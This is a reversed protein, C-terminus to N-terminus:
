TKYPKMAGWNEGNKIEVKLPVAIKYVSEMINELPAAIEKLIDNRVEFLLEDHISLLPKAKSALWGREKLFEFSKIMALKIIDAGLSQIPMNTARRELEARQRQNPSNIGLLWRRRGNLNSVYGLAAAENKTREQWTKIDPFDHFYEDIFNEAEALSLGSTQSLGRAGMGYVVSFNLTKGLRRMEPTVKELPVNFVQAATLSHVDKNELFARILKQDQAVHALLRLEIQSYDFSLLSSGMEAVFASRLRKSWKSEQPINQLNPKESALRGTATGTQLYTTRVRHDRDTLAILPEVFSTKIKFNERYGLVLGIIPNKGELARLAEEATSVQGTSTKKTKGGIKMDGFLKQGLQKPSNINFVGGATEYIKRATQDLETEIEQKLVLLAQGDIEVGLREMAALIKVVPMEIKEFVFDLGYEEIKASLYNFLAAFHDPNKPDLNQYLFRRGLATFSFDKQDPDILWGAIELDFIPDAVELNAEALRKMTDKWDFSIKLVSSFLENKEKLAAAADLFVVTDAPLQDKGAEFLNRSESASDPKLLRNVISTFGLKTLYRTLKELNPGKYALDSLKTELPVNKAITALKKSFLAEKRRAIVKKALPHAIDMKEYLKELDGFEGLLKEATKPGVGAVGPINDSQDGVLGKYDPM